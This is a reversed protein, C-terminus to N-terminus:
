QTRKKEESFSFLALCAILLNFPLVIVSRFIVFKHEYLTDKVSAFRRTCLTGEKGGQEQQGETTQGYNRWGNMRGTEDVHHRFRFLFFSRETFLESEKKKKMESIRRNGTVDGAGARLEEEEEKGPEKEEM